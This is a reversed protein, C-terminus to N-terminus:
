KCMVLRSQTYYIYKYIGLDLTMIKNEPPINVAYILKWFVHFGAIHCEKIHVFFDLFLPLFFSVLIPNVIGFFYYSM